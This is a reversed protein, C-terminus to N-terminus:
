VLVTLNRSGYVITAPNFSISIGMPFSIGASFGLESHGYEGHAVLEVFEPGSFNALDLFVTLRVRKAWFYNTIEGESEDIEFPFEVYANNHTNYSDLDVTNTHTSTAGFYTIQAYSSQLDVRANNNGGDAYTGEWAVGAADESSWLPKSGWECSYLIGIQKPAAMIEILDASMTAAAAKMEPADELPTGDYDKILEIAEDSYCYVDRLVEEPLSARYLLEKEPADSTYFSVDNSEVGSESLEEPTMSRIAVIYDYENYTDTSMEIEFDNSLLTDRNYLAREETAMVPMSLSFCLALAMLLNCSRRKM